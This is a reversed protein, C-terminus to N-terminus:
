SANLRACLTGAQELAALAATLETRGDLSDLNLRVEGGVQWLAGPAPDLYAAVTWGDSTMLGPGQHETYCQDIREGDLWHSTPSSCEPTPCPVAPATGRPDTVPANALTALHTM